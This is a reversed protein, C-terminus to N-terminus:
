EVWRAVFLNTQGSGPDARNSAWVLLTGDPSWVPFGDFGPATSVRELGTGDEGVM